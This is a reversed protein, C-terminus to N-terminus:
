VTTAAAVFAYTVLIEWYNPPQSFEKRVYRQTTMHDNGWVSDYGFDECRKAIEVVQDPTAFPVPYTLGEMCTPLGVSYKM